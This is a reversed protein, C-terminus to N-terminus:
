RIAYYFVDGFELLPLNDIYRHLINGCPPEFKVIYFIIIIKIVASICVSINKVVGLLNTCHVIIFIFIFSFLPFIGLNPTSTKVRWHNTSPPEVGLGRTPTGGGCGGTGMSRTVPEPLVRLACKDSVEYELGLVERSIISISVTQQHSVVTSNRMMKDRVM